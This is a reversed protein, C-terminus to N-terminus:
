KRGLAQVHDTWQTWVTGCSELRKWGCGTCEEYVGDKGIVPKHKACEAAQEQRVKDLLALVTPTLKESLSQQLSLHPCRKLAPGETACNCYTIEQAAIEIALRFTDLYDMRESM